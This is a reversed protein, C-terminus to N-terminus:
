VERNTPLTLHTYSVPRCPSATCGAPRGGRGRPPRCWWSSRSPARWGSCPRTTTCCGAPCRCPGASPRRPGHVYSQLRIVHPLEYTARESRFAAGSQELVEAKGKFLLVLARRTSCVNLPEYTTNLVLVKRM